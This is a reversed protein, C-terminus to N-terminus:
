HYVRTVGTSYVVYFNRNFFSINSRYVSAYSSADAAFRSRDDILNGTSLYIYAGRDVEPPVIEHLSDGYSGVESLLVLQGYEDSQVQDNSNLSKRLWIATALEPTSVTFREVNEGRAVLSGPAQGGFFLTGLGTAWVALVAISIVGVVLSLRSVRHALEGLFMTIPVALLIAAVIAIREPSYAVALTGSFRSIAGIILAAVALSVIEPSYASSKRRGLKFLGYLLAIGALVWLGDHAFINLWNWSTSLGPAIGPSSPVKATVLHISSSGPIPVIWKATKHLESVLIKELVPASINSTGSSATLRLGRAVLAGSPATLANNRTVGLNWGFAAVLALLVLAGNVIRRVFAGSRHNKINSRPTGLWGNSWLLGVPWAILLIGAVLYSTSYHTFSIAVILLGIITQARRKPMTRDFAVMVLAALMTLAMAQRSISVLAIPFVQSSVVLGAVVGLALGPRPTRRDSHVWRPVYRVTSFTALPLFALIAPVVLQFFATLRLKVLSHLIVPLVTLSLMSAYPDHNAPIVWLGARLTHSAVGFEQQIDWGYLHGGRLSTSLLLALSAAYLLASLPWRSGRRWGGVVGVLLVVVDLAASVVALSNDGSHNLRAVGLIALVPLLGFVLTLAVHNTHVGEFIWTTPDRRTFASSALVVIALIGWIIRQPFPDLPHALGLHPGLLSAIGGVVMIVMLSLSVALVMRGAISAPRTWIASMIAAGPILLLTAVGPLPVLPSHYIALLVSAAAAVALLLATRFPWRSARVVPLEM